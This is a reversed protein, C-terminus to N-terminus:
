HPIFAAERKRKNEATKEAHKEMKDEWKKATKKKESLFYEGTELEIDLWIENALTPDKELEKKIMLVKLRAWLLLPTDRFSFIADRLIEIAKLTSSNVRISPSVITIM